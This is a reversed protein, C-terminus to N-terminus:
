PVYEIFSGGLMGEIYLSNKGCKLFILHQWFSYSWVIYLSSFKITPFNNGHKPIKPLPNSYKIWGSLPGSIIRNKVKFWSIIWNEIYNDDAPDFNNNTM